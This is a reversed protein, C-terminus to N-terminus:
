LHKKFNKVIFTRTSIFVNKSSRFESRQAVTVNTTTMHFFTQNADGHFGSCVFLQTGGLESVVQAPQLATGDGSAQLRSIKRKRSPKIRYIIVSRM